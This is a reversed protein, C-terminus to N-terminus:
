LRKGGWPYWNVPNDKHQLLYPSKEKALRNLIDVGKGIRIINIKGMPITLIGYFLFFQYILSDTIFCIM